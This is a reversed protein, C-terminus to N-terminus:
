EPYLEKYFVFNIGLGTDRIESVVSLFKKNQLCDQTIM